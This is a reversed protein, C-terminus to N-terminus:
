FYLAQLLVQSVVRETLREAGAALKLSTWASPNKLPYTCHVKQIPIGGPFCDPWLLPLSYGMISILGSLFPILQRHIPQSHCDVPPVASIGFFAKLVGSIYPQMGKSEFM